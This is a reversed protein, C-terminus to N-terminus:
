CGVKELVAVDWLAWLILCIGVLSLWLFSSAIGLGIFSLGLVGRVTGRKELKSLKMSRNM